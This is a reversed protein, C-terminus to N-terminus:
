GNEAMQNAVQKLLLTVSDNQLRTALPEHRNNAVTFGDGMYPMTVRIPLGIKQELATKTLGELGVARNQIPYVRQLDVGKAKLYDLVTLTLDATALDTSLIMAIGDTKQIVPLSIRSLSRGLDVFVFDYSELIADLIDGVRDGSVQGASEPDPAGALLYFYWGSVRPLNDTFYAATTQDPAQVCATVLNLRDSYGVIQAISGIPLVLDIVAVKKDTKESALCMAINACLSSTGTGGKACLFTILKGQKKPAKQEEGVLRPLLELLKQVAQGSKVLYHSCGAALLASMEQPNERRSLAVMAVKSTRRDQRLRTILDLGTLDPLVPDLVIIDPQDRWASILGERGLSASLVSYGSKSLIAALYNLSASDGDIVLISVPKTEM